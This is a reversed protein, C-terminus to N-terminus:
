RLIAKVFAKSDDYVSTNVNPDQATLFYYTRGSLTNGTQSNFSEEFLVDSPKDQVFTPAPIDDPLSLGKYGSHGSEAIFWTLVNIYERRDLKSQRCIIKEQAATRRGCLMVFLNTPGDM